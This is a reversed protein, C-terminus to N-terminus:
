ARPGQETVALVHAIRSAAYGIAEAPCLPEYDPDGDPNAWVWCWWWTGAGDQRCAVEQRLGPSLLQARRDHPDPEGKPNRVQLAQGHLRAVKFGQKSLEVELVDCFVEADDSLPNRFTM